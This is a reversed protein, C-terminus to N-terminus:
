PLEYAEVLAVGTANGLGSVQITYAGPSLTVVMAADKGGSPLPFAGVQAFTAATQAATASSEEWNDNSAILTSGSFVAVEPNELTGTVGYQALAPGIGRVLLKKPSNGEIVVGVILANEGASLKMRASVNVLRAASHTDTDYVEALAIGAGSSDSRALSMTHVGHDLTALLASDKGRNALAFAGVRATAIAIADSDTGAQWDDNTAIVGSDRSLTLLPDPLANAVGFSALTPGIGRVLVNKGDGAVVFGMILSEGGPGSLARASFNVIRSTAPTVTLNAAATVVTGALNTVAVSYAGAHAAQANTLTLTPRTAGVLATGNFLWQYSPAPAGTAGVTLSVTQGAVINQSRPAATITPLSPPVVNFSQAIVTPLFTGNGAQSAQLTVTGVGTVTVTYGSVLAPGSVVSLVVPLGSSAALGLTFPADGFVQDPIVAFGPSPSNSGAGNGTLAALAAPPCLALLPLVCALALVRPALVSTPYYKKIYPTNGSDFRSRISASSESLPKVKVIM